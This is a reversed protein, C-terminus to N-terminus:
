SFWSVAHKRQGKFVNRGHMTQYNDVLVADGPSMALKVTHERTLRPHNPAKARTPPDPGAGLAPGASARAAPALVCSRPSARM